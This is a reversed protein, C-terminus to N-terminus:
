AAKLVKAPASLCLRTLLLKAAPNHPEQRVCPPDQLVLCYHVAHALTVQMDKVSLSGSSILIRTHLLQTILSVLLRPSSDWGKYTHVNPIYLYTIYM